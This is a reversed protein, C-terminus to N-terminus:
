NAKIFKALGDALVDTSESLHLVATSGDYEVRAIRGVGTLGLGSPVNAV